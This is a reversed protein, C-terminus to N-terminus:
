RLAARVASAVAEPGASLPCVTVNGREVIEAILPDEGRGLGVAEALDDALRGSEALAVLSRGARSHGVAEQRAVAGGGCLVVGSPGRAALAAALALLVRTEDGWDDGHVLVFHSHHPELDERNRDLWGLLAPRRGAWSVLGDPAVGVLPASRGNMAPGLISFIGADTAGTLVTLGDALAVGAVGQGIVLGLRDELDANLEATSGNVVLTGKPPPLDLRRLVEEGDVDAAVRLARATTGGPFRIVEETATM